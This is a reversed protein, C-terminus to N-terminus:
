IKPVYVQISQGHKSPSGGTGTTRAVGDIKSTTAKRVQTEFTGEKIETTLKDSELILVIGAINPSTDITCIIRGDSIKLAQLGYGDLTVPLEENTLISIYTDKIDLVCYQNKGFIVLKNEDLKVITNINSYGWDLILDNGPVFTNNYIKYVINHKENSRDSYKVFIRDTSIACIEVGYPTYEYNYLIKEFNTTITTGSITLKKAILNKANDDFYALVIQNDQLNTLGFNSTVTTSALTTTNGATISNSSSNYTVVRGKCYNDSANRYVILASTNSIRCIEAENVYSTSINLNNSAAITGDDAIKIAIAYLNRENDKDKYTIIASNQTLCEIKIDRSVINNLTYENGLIIQNKNITLMRVKLYETTSSGYYDYYAIVVKNEALRAIEYDLGLSTNCELNVLSTNFVSGEALGNVFEVFSGAEITENAAVYKEIIDGIVGNGKQNHIFGQM